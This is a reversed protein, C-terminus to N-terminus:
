FQLSYQVKAGRFPAVIRCNGSSCVLGGRLRGGFVTLSHNLDGPGGFDYRVEASGMWDEVTESHNEFDATMNLSLGDRPFIDAWVLLLDSAHDDYVNERNLYEGSMEIARV